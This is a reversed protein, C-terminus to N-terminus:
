GITRVPGSVVAVNTFAPSRVLGDPNLFDVRGHQTAAPSTM